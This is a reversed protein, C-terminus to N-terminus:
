ANWDAITVGVGVDRHSDLRFEALRWALTWQFLSIQIKLYTGFVYFLFIYFFLQM